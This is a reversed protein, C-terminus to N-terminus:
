YFCSDMGTISRLTMVNKIFYTRFKMIIIVELYWKSYQWILGSEYLLLEFEIYQLIYIKQQWHHQFETVIGTIIM